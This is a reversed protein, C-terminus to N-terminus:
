WERLDMLYDALWGCLWALFSSCDSTFICHPPVKGTTWQNLVLRALSPIHALDRTPSSPDWTSCLTTGGRFFIHPLLANSGAWFHACFAAADHWAGQCASLLRKEPGCSVIVVLRLGRHGQAVLGVAALVHGDKGLAGHRVQQVADVLLVVDGVHHGVCGANTGVAVM